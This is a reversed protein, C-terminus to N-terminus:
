GERWVHWAFAPAVMVGVPRALTALGGAIGALLTRRRELFLFAAVALALFLSEAYVTSFIFALPAIALYLIARRAVQQGLREITLKYLLCLAVAFLATSLGAGVYSLDFWPLLKHCVKLLVPYLPYFAAGDGHALAPEYGHLAIQRYWIGDWAGLNRFLAGVTFPTGAPRTVWAEMAFVLATVLRSLGFVM